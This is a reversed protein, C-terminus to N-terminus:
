APREAPPICQKVAAELIQIARRMALVQVEGVTANEKQHILVTFSLSEAGSVMDDCVVRWHAPGEVQITVGGSVKSM